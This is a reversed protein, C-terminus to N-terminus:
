WLGTIQPLRLQPIADILSIQTWTQPVTETVLKYLFTWGM